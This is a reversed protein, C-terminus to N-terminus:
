HEGGGDEIIEEPSKSVGKFNEAKTTGGKPMAFGVVKHNKYTITVTTNWPKSRNFDGTGDNKDTLVASSGSFIWVTTGAIVSKGLTIKTFKLEQILETAQHNFTVTKDEKSIELRISDDKTSCFCYGYENFVPTKAPAAKPKTAAFSITTMGLLMIVTMVVSLIRKM